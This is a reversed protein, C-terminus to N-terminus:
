MISPPLKYEGVQMSVTTLGGDYRATKFVANEQTATVEAKRATEGSQAAETEKAFQTGGCTVPQRLLSAPASSSIFRNQWALVTEEGHPTKGTRHLQGGADLVWM